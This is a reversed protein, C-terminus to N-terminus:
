PKARRYYALRRRLKKLATTARREKAEWREIAQETRQRKMARIDPKQAPPKEPVRLKGDLWGRRVVERIMRRECRAHESNHGDPGYRHSMDHVLERWGRAPNVYLVVRGKEDRGGTAFARYENGLVKGKRVRVVVAGRSQERGRVFRRLKKVAAVAEEAALEPVQVPWAANVREYWEKKTVRAM